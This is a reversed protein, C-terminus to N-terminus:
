ESASSRKESGLNLSVIALMKSSSFFCSFFAFSRIPYTLCEAYKQEITEETLKTHVCKKPKDKCEDKTTPNNDDCETDTQCEDKPQKTVPKIICLAQQGTENLYVEIKEKDKTVTVHWYPVEQMQPSCNERIKEINTKVMEKDLFAARIDADPNKALFTQVEPLTKVFNTADLSKICGSLILLVILSTILAKKM